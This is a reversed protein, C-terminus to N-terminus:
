SSLIPGQDCFLTGNPLKGESKENSFRNKKRGMRGIKRKFSNELSNGWELHLFRALCLLRIIETKGSHFPWVLFHFHSVTLNKLSFLRLGFALLESLWFNTFREREVMLVPWDSVDWSPGEKGPANKRMNVTKWHRSNLTFLSRMFYGIVPAVSWVHHWLKSLGMVDCSTLLVLM